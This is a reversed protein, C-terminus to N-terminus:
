IEPVGKGEALVGHAREQEIIRAAAGAPSERMKDRAHRHMLAQLADGEIRRQRGAEELGDRHRLTMAGEMEDQGIAGDV